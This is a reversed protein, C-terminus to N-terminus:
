RLACPRMTFNKLRPGLWWLWLWLIAPDTTALTPGMVSCVAVGVDYEGAGCSPMGCSGGAVDTFCGMGADRLGSPSITAVQLVLLPVLVGCEGVEAPLALRPSHLEGVLLLWLPPV